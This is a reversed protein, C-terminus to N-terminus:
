TGRVRSRAAAFVEEQRSIRGLRVDREAQALLKSCSLQSVIEQHSALDLWVGRPKDKQEIVIGFGGSSMNVRRLAASVRAHTEVDDERRRRDLRVLRVIESGRSSTFVAAEAEMRLPRAM